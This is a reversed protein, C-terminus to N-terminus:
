KAEALSNLLYLLSGAGVATYTNPLFGSRVILYSETEPIRECSIIDNRENACGEFLIALKALGAIRNHIHARIKKSNPKM